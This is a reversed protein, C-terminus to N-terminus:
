AKEKKNEFSISSRQKMEKSNLPQFNSLVGNQDEIM